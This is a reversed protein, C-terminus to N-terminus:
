SNAISEKCFIKSYDSNFCLNNKIIFNLLRKNDIIKQKEVM